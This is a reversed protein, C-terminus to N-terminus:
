NKEDKKGEQEDSQIEYYRKMIMYVYELFEYFLIVIEDLKDKYVQINSILTDFLELSQTIYNRLKLLIIDSSSSLYSEISLLRNYIKKLEYVRGISTPDQLEESTDMGGMAPDIPQGTAPDVEGGQMAQDEPNVDGTAPDDLTPDEAEPDEVNDLEDTEDEPKKTQEWISGLLENLIDM